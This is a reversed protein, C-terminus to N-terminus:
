DTEKTRGGPALDGSHGELPKEESEKTVPDIECESNYAQQPIFDIGRKKLTRWLLKLRDPSLFNDRKMRGVNHGKGRVTRCNNRSGDYFLTPLKINPTVWVV